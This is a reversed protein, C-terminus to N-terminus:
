TMPLTRRDQMFPGRVTGTLRYEASEGSWPLRAYLRALNPSVDGHFLDLQSDWNPPSDVRNKM